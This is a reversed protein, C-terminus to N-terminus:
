NSSIENNKYYTNVKQTLGLSKKVYIFLHYIYNYQYLLNSSSYREITIQTILIFTQCM